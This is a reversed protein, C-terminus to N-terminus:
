QFDQKRHLDLYYFGGHATSTAITQDGKLLKTSRIMEIHQGNAGIRTLATRVSFINAIAKPVYKANTLNIMEGSALRLTIDGTGVVEVRQGAVGGITQREGTPVEKFSVFHERCTSVHGCSAASDMVFDRPSNRIANTAPGALAFTMLAMAATNKGGRQGGWGKEPRTSRRQEDRSGSKSRCDVARHGQKGCKFCNGQFRGGTTTMAISRVNGDEQGLNMRKLLAIVDNRITKPQLNDVPGSLRMLKIPEFESPLSMLMRTALDADSLARTHDTASLMIATMQMKAFHDKADDITCGKKLRMSNIELLLTAVDQSSAGAYEEKLAGWAGAPDGRFGIIISLQEEEVNIVIANMAKAKKEDDQTGDKKSEQIVDLLDLDQLMTEMAFAWLTYNSGNLKFAIKLGSTRKTTSM